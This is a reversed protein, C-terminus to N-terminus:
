LSLARKLQEKERIYNIVDSTAGGAKAIEILSIRDKEPDDQSRMYAEKWASDHSIESLDYSDVDKYNEIANNFFQIDTKSLEDTDPEELPIVKSDEIKFVKNFNVLDAVEPQRGDLIQYCKYTFSPVPGHKLACFTENFIPKGYKVLSEQQAFYMIKFLKIYDVGEKFSKLIFLLSAKIKLIENNTKM